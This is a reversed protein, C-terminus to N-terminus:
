EAEVSQKHNRICFEVSALNTPGINANLKQDFVKKADTM